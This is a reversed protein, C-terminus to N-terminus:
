KDRLSRALRRPRPTATARGLLVVFYGFIAGLIVIGILASESSM